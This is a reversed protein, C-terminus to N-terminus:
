RAPHVYPATVRSQCLPGSRTRRGPRAAQAGLTSTERTRDTAPPPRPQSPAPHPCSSRRSASRAATRGPPTSYMLPTSRAARGNRHAHRHHGATRTSRSHEFYRVLTSTDLLRSPLPGTSPTLVERLIRSCRRFIECAWGRGTPRDAVRSGRLSAGNAFGEGTSTTTTGAIPTCRRNTIPGLGPDQPVAADPRHCPRGLDALRRGAGWRATRRSAWHGATSHGIGASMRAGNTVVSQSAWCRPSGSRSTHSAETWIIGVGGCRADVRSAYWSACMGPAIYASRTLSRM